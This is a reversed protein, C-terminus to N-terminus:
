KLCAKMRSIYLKFFENKIEDRTNRYAKIIKMETGKAAFPDEIELQILEIQTNFIRRCDLLAQGSLCIILDFQENAFSEIAKPTHQSIDLLIEKMVTIAYPSVAKEPKSGASFVALKHDLSQLFGEAMPSRCSNGTCAILIKM